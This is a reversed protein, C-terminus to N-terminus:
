QTWSFLQMMQDLLTQKTLKMTNLYSNKQSFVLLYHHLQLGTLSMMIMEEVKVM